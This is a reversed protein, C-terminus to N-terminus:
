RTAIAKIGAVPRAGLRERDSGHERWRQVCPAIAQLEGLVQIGAPARRQLVPSRGGAWIEVEPPLKDRLETLAELVQNPNLVTSFSLAVVQARHARAALAIDWVPTQVGLSICRCGELVLISEAMLLGLAHAEQPITTLLVRPDRDPTPVSAIATRLLGQVSETFLHEEFVAIAGSMWAEGIRQTLPALLDVVFRQLGMRLQAELLLRRFAEAEHAQLLAICRDLERDREGHASVAQPPASAAQARNSLHALEELSLGIIKGPRFGADMLRRLMRLKEVQELPYSREGLSDREPTPFGYRREWVRLTDKSLGTDREVAAISRAIAPPSSRDNM